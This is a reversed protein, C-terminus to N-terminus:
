NSGSGPLIVVDVGGDGSVVSVSMMGGFSKKGIISVCDVESTKVLGQLYLNVPNRGISLGERLSPLAVWHYHYCCSVLVKTGEIM